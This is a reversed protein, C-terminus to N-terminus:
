IPWEYVSISFLILIFLNFLIKGELILLVLVPILVISSIFRKLLENIM